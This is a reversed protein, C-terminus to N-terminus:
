SINSSISSKPFRGDVFGLKSTGLLGIGMSGSWLAYNNSGILQLSILSSGLTNTPKLFLPHNHNHLFPTFPRNFMYKM